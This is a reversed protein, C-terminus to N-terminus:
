VDITVIKRIALLGLLELLAIGGLFAWGLISTFLTDVAGPELEALVLLMGVPLLGVVWGQLKGQSTLAIIKGEMAAKERLTEALREFIEALNGGVDKAVLTATVILQIDSSQVREGLNNMADELTLGMRQEKLVMTFEQSIPGKTEKVMNEIAIMATSGARMAGAIQALADPLAAEIAAKRRGELVRYLIKPVSFLAIGVLFAIVLNAFVFYVLLPVLLLALINTHYIKKEDVFFFMSSLKERATNTFKEEYSQLTSIGGSLVSWTGVVVALFILVLIVTVADM